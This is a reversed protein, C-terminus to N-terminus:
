LNIGMQVKIIRNWKRNFSSIISTERCWQTSSVVRRQTSSVVLDDKDIEELLPKWMAGTGAGRIKGTDIDYIM